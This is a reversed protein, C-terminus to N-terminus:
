PLAKLSKFYEEKIPLMEFGNKEIIRFFNEIGDEFNLKGLSIKIALEWASVISIYNKNAPEIIAGLATRSLKEPDGLFWLVTHTDLLCKM